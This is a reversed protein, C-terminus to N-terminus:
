SKSFRHLTQQLKGTLQHFMQIFRLTLNGHVQNEETIVCQAIFESIKSAFYDVKIVNQAYLLRWVGQVRHATWCEPPPTDNNCLQNEGHRLGTCHAMIAHLYEDESITNEKFRVAADYFCLSSAEGHNSSAKARSSSAEVRSSITEASTSSSEAPVPAVESPRQAITSARLAGRRAPTVIEGNSVVKILFDIEGNRYHLVVCVKRRKRGPAKTSSGGTTTTSVEARRRRGSTSPMICQDQLALCAKLELGHQSPHHLSLCNLNWHNPEFPVSISSQSHPPSWSEIFDTGLLFSELCLGM